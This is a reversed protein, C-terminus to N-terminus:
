ADHRRMTRTDFVHGVDISTRDVDEDVPTPPRRTRLARSARDDRRDRADPEVLNLRISGLNKGQLRFQRDVHKGISHISGSTQRECSEVAM